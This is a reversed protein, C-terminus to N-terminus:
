ECGSVAVVGCCARQVKGLWRVVVIGKRQPVTIAMFGYCRCEWVEPGLGGATSHYRAMGYRHLAAPISNNCEVCSREVIWAAESEAAYRIGKGEVVNFARFAAKNMSVIGERLAM